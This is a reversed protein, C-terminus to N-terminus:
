SWSWACRRSWSPRQFTRTSWRVQDTRPERQGAGAFRRDPCRLGGAAPTAWAGSGVSLARWARGPAPRQQVQPGRDGRDVLRPRAHPRAHLEDELLVLLEKMSRAIRDPKYIVLTDGPKLMDLATRLKPRSGRTSATEMIVERCDAAALADPQM